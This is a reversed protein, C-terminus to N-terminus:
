CRSCTARTTSPSARAGRHPDRARGARLRRADRDGARAADGVDPRARLLVRRDAARLRLRRLPCRDVAVRRDRAGGVDVPAALLADYTRQYKWKVLTGFIAASSARSCCRPPSRARDRRVRHLRLGGRAHRARRLRLRLRAPLRDAARDGLLDVLALVHRLEHGRARARGHVASRERAMVRDGGGHAARVRGRPEAARRQGEPLRRQRRGHRPDRREHRHPPHPLGAARVETEVEALRAPPGYVETVEGGVHERVLASPAGEAVARGHSMITVTDALREAEEIYHTSMLISVGEGRLGDILSWLEQRVQPDLGVTPEDLLLLRPQHVLARGILLRRRMGGSLKDVRTDRRETLNALSSRASSPRGAIAGRGIRYLHAFVVLNQEVTLAIDLNDLQPVVGMKARARKSDAPLVHGLVRSRARTRRRSAPSSGCRRRSARATRVSCGSARARPCTSTSATSPPSRATASSSAACASPPLLPSPWGTGPHCAADPVPLGRARPAAARGRRRARRVALPARPPRGDGGRAVARGDPVAAGPGRDGRDHRGACARRRAARRRARGGGPPPLLQRRHPGPRRPRGLAPASRRPPDRARGGHGPHDPSPRRHAPAADGGRSVCSRRRAAASASCRCAATTPARPRARARCTTPRNPRGPLDHREPEGYALPDLDPGGALCLGDLRDLLAM